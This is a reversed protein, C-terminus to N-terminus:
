RTVGAPTLKLDATTDASATVEVERGSSAFTRLFASSRFNEHVQDASAVAVYRGTPGSWQFSGNTQIYVEVYPVLSPQQPILYVWGSTAPQGDTTVTGKLRGVANTLTIRIPSGGSGAAVTLDDSLLDTVGVSVAQVYWAGTQGGVLRYRGPQLQFSSTQDQKVNLRADPDMGEGDNALNHFELNFQQLSPTTPASTGNAVPAFNFSAELSFTPVPVLHIESQAIGKGTVTIRAEGALSRDRDGYAAKLVFSGAPLQATYEEGEHQAFLQFTVGSPGVASLRVGRELDAGDVAIRVPYSPGVRPRLDVRRQEGPVLDFAEDFRSGLAPYAVPLVAEGREQSRPTFGTVVRFRGAPADFRYEGHVDTQSFGSAIWRSGTSDFSLRRLRVQTRALPLGDPGSVLGTLIADPYLKLELFADLDAIRQMRRSEPLATAAYGPKAVQAFANADAFGAFSFKGQADTLVVRSNLTVLARPVPAGTLANVVRGSITRTVTAAATADSTAANASNSAPTSSRNARRGSTTNADQGWLVRASGVALGLLAWRVSSGVRVRCSM